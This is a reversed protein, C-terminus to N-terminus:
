AGVFSGVEGVGAGFDELGGFCAGAQDDERFAEVRGVAGLVEGFVCLGKERRRGGFVLGGGEVGEGGDGCLGFCVEYSATDRLQVRRSIFEVVGRQDEGWRARQDAGVAFCVEEVDVDGALDGELLALHEGGAVLQRNDIERLIALDPQRDAVIDAEGFGGHYGRALTSEQQDVRTREIGGGTRQM